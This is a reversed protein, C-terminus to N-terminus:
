FALRETHETMGSVPGAICDNRLGELEVFNGEVYLIGTGSMVFCIGTGAKRM